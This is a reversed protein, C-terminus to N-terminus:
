QQVNTQAALLFPIEALAARNARNKLGSPLRLPMVGCCSISFIRASMLFAFSPKEHAGAWVAAAAAVVSPGATSASSVKVVESLASSALANVGATDGCAQPDAGVGDACHESEAVAASLWVAADGAAGSPDLGVVSFASATLPESAGPLAVPFFAAGDAPEPLEESLYRVKMGSLM